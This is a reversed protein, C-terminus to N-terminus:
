HMAWSTEPSTIAFQEVKEFQHVRFIGLVDKGSSGAEKRFCTSYGAYKIPLSKPNINEGQHLACIPQESTAILFKEEADEATVRYLSEDFDELQCVLKMVEKKMFFPTQVHKFAKKHLFKLGYNILAQNLWLGPGTLFYGRHGSVESGVKPEFGGIMYLLEDHRLLNTGPKCEGHTKILGNEAEDMSVPVDPAVINGIKYLMEDRKNELEDRTKEMDTIKNKLTAAEEVISTIDEGAKKKPGIQKNLDNHQKQAQMVQHNLQRWQNDIEIIQDVLEVSKGRKRQSDRILDPNGGERDARFLNIDVM